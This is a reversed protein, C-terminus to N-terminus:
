VPILTFTTNVELIDLFSFMRQYAKASDLTPFRHAKLIDVGYPYGGSYDDLAVFKGHNFDNNYTEPRNSYRLVYYKDTKITEM